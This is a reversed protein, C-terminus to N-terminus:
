ALAALREVEVRNDHFVAGHGMDSDREAVVATMNRGGPCLKPWHGKAGGVVGPRVRDSIEVRAQFEGRENYVRAADGHALGRAAADEPHLVIHQPGAKARLAPHNAFESNLFHPGAPAVLALPHRAALAPDRPVAEYPPTYTPLPDLGLAAARESFFELRGSPTPFGQAFPAFPPPPAVRMWGRAKLAELTIGAEHLQPTDLVARALGEDSDYLCSETRGLARALRRLIESNPLCEGPPAVAPENWAVYLHGYAIHLDAHETQMTAPLLLDAFDATDTQFHEIVVTFLDDRALGRRVKNQDPVSAAPNSGYVLLSRVPPDTPGLLVDGLRTMPLVRTGPPRLDDRWLRAWNGTFFGRTDYAAGGGAHRWDGTVGPICTIARVAMGGGAHRQLGPGIRIATPRAAALREGLAEIREVPLGTIAAVRSPPYELIRARFADWGLTHRDLFERDEAGRRVVVHLLGLALAADTGPRPALHEDAREASRTRIPDIVAVHAGAARAADIYKWSHHHTVLPNTGWLLVLRAEAFGEPDMGVRNDGLTLGTGVGGATMCISIHHHSVGLVNWLRRGCGALGQIMGLSGTGYYPWIAQAGERAIIARWREAIEQLAAEWSIREFRGEGKDGVRRMPYLLRDPLRTHELFRNVKVCLAGRTYPHGRDGRLAVAEGDRVTVVWGCTDPCDLPCVGHVERMAADKV